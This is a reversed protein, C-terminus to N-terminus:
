FAEQVSELPLAKPPHLASGQLYFSYYLFMFQFAFSM